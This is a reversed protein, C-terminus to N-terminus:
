SKHHIGISLGFSCSGLDIIEGIEGTYVVLKYSKNDYLELDDVDHWRPLSELWENLEVIDDDFNNDWKTYDWCYLHYDGVTEKKYQKVDDASSLLVKITESASDIFKSSIALAVESRIGM